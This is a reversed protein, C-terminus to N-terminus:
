ATLTVRFYSQKTKRDSSDSVQKGSFVVDDSFDFKIFPGPLSPLGGEEASDQAAASAQAGASQVKKAPKKPAPRPPPGGEWSDCLKKALDTWQSVTDTDGTAYGEYDYDGRKSSGGNSSRTSETPTVNNDTLWQVAASLDEDCRLPNRSIDLVSLQPM